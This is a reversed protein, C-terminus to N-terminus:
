VISFLDAHPHGSYCMASGYAPHPMHSAFIAGCPEEPRCGAFGAGADNAMQFVPLEDCPAANFPSSTPPKQNRGRPTQGYPFAIPAHMHETDVGDALHLLHAKASSAAPRHINTSGAMNNSVQPQSTPGTVGSCVSSCSVSSCSPSARSMAYMSNFADMSEADLSSRPTEFVNDSSAPSSPCDARYNWASLELQRLERELIENRRILDHVFENEHQYSQLQAIEAELSEIYEKMRARRTRQAKRDMARKHELQSSNLNAASRNRLRKDSRIGSASMSM